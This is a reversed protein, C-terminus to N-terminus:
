ASRRSLQGMDGLGGAFSPQGRGRRGHPANGGGRQVMRSSEVGGVGDAIIERRGIDCRNSSGEVHALDSLCILISRNVKPRFVSMGSM